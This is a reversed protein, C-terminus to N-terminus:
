KKLELSTLDTQYEVSLAGKSYVLRDSYFKPFEQHGHAAYYAHDVAYKDLASWKAAVSAPPKTDLANVTADYHKDCVYGENL